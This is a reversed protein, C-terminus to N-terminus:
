LARSLNDDRSCDAQPAHRPRLADATIIPAPPPPERRRAPINIVVDASHVGERRAEQCAAEVAQLADGLGATLIGVMPRDGDASGTHKRRIRQLGALLVWDKFPAGNRLAGPKRALVPM